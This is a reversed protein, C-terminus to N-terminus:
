LKSARAPDDDIELGEWELWPDCLVDAQVGAVLWCRLSHDNSHPQEANAVTFPLCNQFKDDIL